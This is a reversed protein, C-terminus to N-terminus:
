AGGAMNVVALGTENFCQGVNIRVTQLLFFLTADRDVQAKREEVQGLVDLEADHVHWPM